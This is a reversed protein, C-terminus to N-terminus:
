MFETGGSLCYFAQILLVLLLSFASLKYSKSSMPLLWPSSLSKTVGLSHCKESLKPTLLAAKGKEIEKPCAHLSRVWSVSVVGKLTGCFAPQLEDAPRKVLWNNVKTQKKVHALSGM